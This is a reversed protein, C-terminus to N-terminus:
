KLQSINEVLVFFWEVIIFFLYSGIECVKTEIKFVWKLDSRFHAM